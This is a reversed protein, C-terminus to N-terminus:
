RAFKAFLHVFLGTRVIVWGNAIMREAQNLGKLTSTDVHRYKTKM